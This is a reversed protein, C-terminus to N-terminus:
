EDMSPAYFLRCNGGEKKCRYMATDVQQYLQNLDEEGRNNNLFTMGISITQTDGKPVLGLSAAKEQICRAMLATGIGSANSLVM